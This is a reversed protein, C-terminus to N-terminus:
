FHRTNATLFQEFIVTTSKLYSCPWYFLLFTWLHWTATIYICVWCICLVLTREVCDSSSFHTNERQTFVNWWFIDCNKVIKRSITCIYLNKLFFIYYERGFRIKHHTKNMYFICLDISADGHVWMMTWISSSVPLMILIKFRCAKAHWILKILKWKHVNIM